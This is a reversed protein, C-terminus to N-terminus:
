SRRRRLKVCLVGNVYSKERIQVGKPVNVRRSFNGGGKIELVDNVLRVEVEEAPGPVRATLTIGEGDSIIDYFWDAEARPVEKERLIGRIERLWFALASALLAGIIIGFIGGKVKFILIILLAIAAISMALLINSLEGLRRVGDM